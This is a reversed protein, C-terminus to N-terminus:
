VLNDQFRISDSLSDLDLSNQNLISSWEMSEFVVMDDLHIKSSKQIELYRRLLSRQNSKMVQPLVPPTSSELDGGSQKDLESNRIREAELQLKLEVLADEADKARKREKALQTLLMGVKLRVNDGTKDLLMGGIEMLRKEKM